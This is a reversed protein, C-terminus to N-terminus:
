GRRMGDMVTDIRVATRRVAALTAAMDEHVEGTANTARAMQNVNNAITGLLRHLAFMEVLTEHRLKEAGVIRAADDALAREVLLRVVTVRAAEARQLLLAEEEPSVKVVHKHQRGGAVNERRRRSFRGVPATTEAM